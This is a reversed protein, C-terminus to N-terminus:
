WLENGMLTLVELDALAPKILGVRTCRLRNFDALCMQVTINPMPRSCLLFNYISDGRMPPDCIRDPGAPSLYDSFRRGITTSMQGGRVCYAGYARAATIDMGVAMISASIHSADKMGSQIEASQQCLLRPGRCVSLDGFFRMKVHDREM